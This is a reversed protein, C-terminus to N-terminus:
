SPNDLTIIVINTASEKIQTTSILELTEPSAEEQYSCFHTQMHLAFNDYNIWTHNQLNESTLSM